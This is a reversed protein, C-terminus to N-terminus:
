YKRDKYVPCQGVSDKFKDLFIEGTADQVSEIDYLSLNNTVGFGVKSYSKVEDVWEM